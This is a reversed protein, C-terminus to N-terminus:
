SGNSQSLYCVWQIACIAGFVALAFGGWIPLGGGNTSNLVAGGFALWAPIGVFWLLRRSWRPQSAQFDNPFRWM